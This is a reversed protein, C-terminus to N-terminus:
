MTHRRANYIMAELNYNVRQCMCPRVTGRGVLALMSGRLTRSMPDLFLLVVLGTLQGLKAACPSVVGSM